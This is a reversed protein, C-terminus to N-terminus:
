VVTIFSRLTHRYTMRFRPPSAPWVVNESLVAFLLILLYNYFYVFEFTFAWWKKDNELSIFCFKSNTPLFFTHNPPSLVGLGRTSHRHMQTRAPNIHNLMLIFFVNEWFLMFIIVSSMKTSLRLRFNSKCATSLFLVNSFFMWSLFQTHVHASFWKAFM